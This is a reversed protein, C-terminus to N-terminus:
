LGHSEELECPTIRVQMTNLHTGLIELLRMDKSYFEWFASDVNLFCVIAEGVYAARSAAAYYGRLWALPDTVLTSLGFIASWDEVVAESYRPFLDVRSCYGYQRAGDQEAVLVVEREFDACPGSVYREAASDFVSEDMWRPPFGFAGPLALWTLGTVDGFLPSFLQHFNSQGAIRIGRM